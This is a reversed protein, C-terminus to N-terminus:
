LAVNSSAVFQTRNYRSLLLENSRRGSLEQRTCGNGLLKQGLSDRAVEHLLHQYAKVAGGDENLTVPKTTALRWDMQEDRVLFRFIGVYVYFAFEM